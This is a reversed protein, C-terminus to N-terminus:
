GNAVVWDKAEFWDLESDSSPPSGSPWCLHNKIGLQLGKVDAPWGVRRVLKGEKMWKVAGLWDRQEIPIRWELSVFSHLLGAANPALPEKEHFLYHFKDGVRQLPYWNKDVGLYEVRCGESLAKLIEETIMKIGKRTVVKARGAM